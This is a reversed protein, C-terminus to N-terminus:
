GLEGVLERRIAELEDAVPGRFGDQVEALLLKEEETRDVVPTSLAQDAAAIVRRAGLFLRGADALFADRDSTRDWAQAQARLGAVFPARTGQRRLFAQFFRVVPRLADPRAGQQQQVCAHCWALLGRAAAQDRPRADPAPLRRRVDLEELWAKALTRDLYTALLARDGRLLPALRQVAPALGAADDGTTLAGLAELRHALTLPSARLLAARRAGADRAPVGGRPLAAVARELREVLPDIGLGQVPLSATGRDAAPPTRRGRTSTAPRPEEPAAFRDRPGLLALVADAAPLDVILLGDDGHQVFKRGGKPRNKRVRDALEPPPPTGPLALTGDHRLAWAHTARAAKQAEAVLRRADAEAAEAAAPRDDALLASAARHLALLDGTALTGAAAAAEVEPPVEPPGPQASEMAAVLLRLPLATFRVDLREWVGPDTVRGDRRRGGAAVLRRQWGGRRFLWEIADKKVADAIWRVRPSGGPAPRRVLPLAVRPRDGRELLARVFTAPGVAARPERADLERAEDEDDVESM